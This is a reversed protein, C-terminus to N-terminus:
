MKEWSPVVLDFTRDMNLPAVIRIHMCPTRLHNLMRKIDDNNKRNWIIEPITNTVSWVLKVTFKHLLRDSDYLGIVAESSMSLGRLSKCKFSEGIIPCLFLGKSTDYKFGGASQDKYVYETRAEEGTLPDAEHERIEWEAQQANAAIASILLMTSIIVKKM